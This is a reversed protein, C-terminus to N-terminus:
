LLVEHGLHTDLYIQINENRWSMLFMSLHMLFVNDTFLHTLHSNNEHYRWVIGHAPGVWLDLRVEGPLVAKSKKYESSRSYM